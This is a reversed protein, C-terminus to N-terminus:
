RKDCMMTVGVVTYGLMESVFKVFAWFESSMDSFDPFARM